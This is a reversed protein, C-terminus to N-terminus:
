CVVVVVLLLLLCHVSSCCQCWLVSSGNVRVNGLNRISPGGGCRWWSSFCNMVGVVGVTGM